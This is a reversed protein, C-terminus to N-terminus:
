RVGKGHRGELWVWCILKGNTTHEVLWRQLADITSQAPTMVEVSWSINERMWLGAIREQPNPQDLDEFPQPAMMLDILPTMRRRKGNYSLSVETEAAWQLVEESFRHNTSARWRRVWFEEDRPLGVYSSRAVNTHIGTATISSRTVQQSRGYCFLEWPIEAGCVENAEIVLASYLADVNHEKIDLFRGNPLRIGAM